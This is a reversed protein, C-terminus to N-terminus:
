LPPSDWAFSLDGPTSRPSEPVGEIQRVLAISERLHREMAGAAAIPDRDCIAQTIEDHQKQEHGVLSHKDRFHRVTVMILQLEARIASSMLMLVENGTATAIQSHFNADLIAYRHADQLAARMESNARVIQDVPAQEGHEAVLRAAQIELPSRVEMLRSMPTREMHSARAMFMQLLRGDFGGVIPTKGNRVDVFGCVQLASLAERAVPRSIGYLETMESTSPLTEGPQLRRQVIDDVVADFVQRTLTRRHLM